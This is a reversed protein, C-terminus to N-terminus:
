WSDSTWVYRSKSYDLNKCLEPIIAKEYTASFVFNRVLSQRYDDENLRDFKVVENIPEFSILESYKM